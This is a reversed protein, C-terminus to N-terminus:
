LFTLSKANEDAAELLGSKAAQKKTDEKAAKLAKKTEEKEDPNILNMSTDYFELSDPDITIEQISTSPITIIVKDEQMDVDAQKIDFGARVTASYTMLFSSKTIFPIKGKKSKIAGQYILKQTTLDSADELKASIAGATLETTDKNKIVYWAGVGVILLVIVAIIVKVANKM